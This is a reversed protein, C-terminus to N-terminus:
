ANAVSVPNDRLTSDTLIDSSRKTILDYLDFQGAFVHWVGSVAVRSVRYDGTRLESWEETVPRWELGRDNYATSKPPTTRRFQGACTWAYQALRDNASAPRSDPHGSWFEVLRRRPGTSGSVGQHVTRNYCLVLGRETFADLARANALAAQMHEDKSAAYSWMARQMPTSPSPLYSAKVVPGGLRYFRGLWPNDWLNAGNLADMRAAATHALLALANPTGDMAADFAAPDAARMYALLKGLNGSRQTWQLFGYSVGQGDANRNVSWYYGEHAATKRFLTRMWDTVEMLENRVTDSSAAVLLLLGAVGLGGVLWVTGNSSRAM